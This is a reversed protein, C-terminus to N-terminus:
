ENLVNTFFYLYQEAINSLSLKKLHKEIKKQNIKYDHEPFYYAEKMKRCLDNVDGKEFTIGCGGLAEEIGDKNSGIVICGCALGELTIIGFAEPTTSPVILIKNNNLISAVEEQSKNGVFIIDNCSSLLSVQNEFWKKEKSDGVIFLKYDSSTEKKFKEFAEILIHCGKDHTVAGVFIFNKRPYLNQNQFISNNYSNYIVTANKLSYGKRSTNSVAINYSFNSCIKKLYGKWGKQYYVQHYIVVWPKKKLILPWTWKLSIGSHVFIDCWKYTKFIVSHSPNRLIKFPFDYEITNDLPTTTIIIVNHGFRVFEKALNETITEIGGIHPKFFYSTILINM